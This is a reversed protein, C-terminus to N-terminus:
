LCGWSCARPLAWVGASGLTGSGSPLHPSRGWAQRYGIVVQETGWFVESGQASTLLAEAVLAGGEVTHDGGEHALYSARDPITSPNSHPSCQASPM